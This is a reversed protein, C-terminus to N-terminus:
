KTSEENWYLCVENTARINAIFENEPLHYNSLEPIDNLQIIFYVFSAIGKSIVELNKKVDVESVIELDSYPLVTVGFDEDMDALMVQVETCKDDVDAVIGFGELGFGKQQVFQLRKIEGTKM